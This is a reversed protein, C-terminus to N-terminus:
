VMQVEVESAAPSFYIRKGSFGARKGDVKAHKIDFPLNWEIDAPPTSFKANLRLVIKKHEGVEIEFSIKGFESPAESIAIHAGRKLWQEPLVPTLILRDKEEFFFLNRVFILLEAVAWGHHGDGITGGLTQPNIAEPWTWTPTAVDLLWNFIDIAKNDRQGLYCQAVHMTLYTGFGAHNVDHFFGNGIFNHEHIWDITNRLRVDDTSLIRLPYYAALSGIAASDMRRSPSIPIIPRGFNGEIYTLSKQIADFFKSYSQEWWFTPWHMIKTLYLTERLGALAWFDDWYYFDSLGFHEASLGPPMLGKYGPEWVHNQWRKRIIWHAANMIPVFMRRLFHQDKTLKYHQCLTWIAEGSSDWEGAQSFFDGNWKQRRPYTNLIRASDEHYGLLDLAYVMYTADRFWFHHYTSPGPTIYSGDCFMLLFAKNAECANMVRKDPVNIQMGKMLKDEWQAVTKDLMAEFHHNRIKTAIKRARAERVHFKKLPVRIEFTKSQGPQLTLRYEALATAMGVRSRGKVYERATAPEHLYLAVDGRSLNSWHIDDPPQMFVGGLKGNVYFSNDGPFEIVHILSVGENNYPRLAFGFSCARVKKSTNRVTVRRYLMDVENEAAFVFSRIKFDEVAFETIVMPLNKYLKQTVRPLNAPSYVKDNLILWDDLSWGNTFPTLLGRPDITAEEESKLTGIGTWNRYCVNVSVPQFGRAVFEKNQPLFQRVIWYPWIWDLNSSVVFRTFLGRVINRMNFIVLEKPTPEHSPHGITIFARLFYFIDGPLGFLRLVRKLFFEKVKGV